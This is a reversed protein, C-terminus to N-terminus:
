EKPLEAPTSAPAEEPIGTPGAPVPFGVKPEFEAPPGMIPDDSDKGDEETRPGVAALPLM